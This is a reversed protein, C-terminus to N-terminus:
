GGQHSAAGMHQSQQHWPQCGRCGCWSVAWSALPNENIRDMLGALTDYLMFSCRLRAHSLSGPSWGVHTCACSTLPRVLADPFLLKSMTNSSVSSHSPSGGHPFQESICEQAESDGWDTTQHYFMVHCLLHGEERCVTRLRLFLM